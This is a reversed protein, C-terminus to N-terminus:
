DIKQPYDYITGDEYFRKVKISKNKFKPFLGWYPVRTIALLGSDLPKIYVNILYYDHLEKVELKELLHGTHPALVYGLILTYKGFDINPLGRNGTYLHIYDDRSKIVQCNNENELNFSIGQRQQYIDSTYDDFFSKVNAPIEDAPIESVDNMVDIDEEEDNNCAVFTLAALLIFLYKKM